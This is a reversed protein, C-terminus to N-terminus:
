SKEEKQAMKRVLTFSAPFCLFHFNQFKDAFAGSFRIFM